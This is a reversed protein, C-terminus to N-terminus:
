HAGEHITTVAVSAKDSLRQLSTNRSQFIWKIDKLHRKIKSQKTM